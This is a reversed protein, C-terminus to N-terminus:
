WLVIPDTSPHSTSPQSQQRVDGAKLATVQENLVSLEAEQGQIREEFRAVKLASMEMENDRESRCVHLADELAVVESVVTARGREVRALGNDKVSLEGRLDVAEAARRDLEATLTDMRVQLDASEAMVGKSVEFEDEKAKLAVELESCRAIAKMLEKDWEKLEKVKQALQKEKQKLGDRFLRLAMVSISWPLETDSMAKLAM